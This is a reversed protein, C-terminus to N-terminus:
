SPDREASTTITISANYSGGSSPPQIYIPFIVGDIAVNGYYSVDDKLNTGGAFAYFVPIYYLKNYFYIKNSYTGFVFDEEETGSSEIQGQCNYNERFSTATYIANFNCALQSMKVPTTSTTSGSFTWISPSTEGGGCDEYPYTATGSIEFTKSKWILAMAKVLSMGVPYFQYGQIRIDAPNSETEEVCDFFEPFLKPYLFPM